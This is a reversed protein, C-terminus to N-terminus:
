KGWQLPQLVGNEFEVIIDAPTPATGAEDREKRAAERDLDRRSRAEAEAKFVALDEPSANQKQAMAWISEFENKDLSALKQALNKIDSM